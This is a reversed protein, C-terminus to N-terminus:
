RTPETCRGKTCPTKESVCHLNCDTIKCMKIEPPSSDGSGPRWTVGSRCTWPLLWSSCLPTADVAQHRWSVSSGECVTYGGPCFLSLTVACRSRYSAVRRLLVLVGVSFLDCSLKCLKDPKSGPALTRFKRSMSYVFFTVHRVKPRHTQSFETVSVTDRSPTYIQRWRPIVGTVAPTCNATSQNEFTTRAETCAHTQWTKPDSSLSHSNKQVRNWVSSTETKVDRKWLTCLFLINFPSFLTFRLWESRLECNSSKPMEFYLTCRKKRCYFVAATVPHEATAPKAYSLVETSPSVISSVGKVKM